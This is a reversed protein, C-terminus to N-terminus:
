KFIYKAQVGKWDTRFIYLDERKCGTCTVLLEDGSVWVATIKGTGQLSGMTDRRQRPFIALWGPHVKGVSVAYWDPKLASGRNVSVEAWFQGDSSVTRQITEETLSSCGFILLASLFLAINAARAVM